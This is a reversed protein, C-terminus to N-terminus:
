SFLVGFRVEMVEQHPISKGKKLDLSIDQDEAYILQARRELRTLRSSLNIPSFLFDGFPRRYGLATRLPKRYSVIGHLGCLLTIHRHDLANLNLPGDFLRILQVVAEPSPTENKSLTNLTSKLLKRDYFASEVDSHDGSIQRQLPKQDSIESLRNTLGANPGILRRRLDAEDFVQRQRENWFARTLLVHPFAFFFPLLAITGPLAVAVLLPVLRIMDRPVTRLLRLDNRTLGSLNHSPVDSVIRFFKLGFYQKLDTFTSSVAQVVGTIHPAPLQARFATLGQLVFDSFGTMCRSLQYAACIYPPPTVPSVDAPLSVPEIFEEPVLAPSSVEGRIAALCPLLVRSTWISDAVDVSTATFVSTVDVRYVPIGGAAPRRIFRNKIWTLQRRAYQRTAAKVKEIAETLMLQGSASDRESSSLQLYKEFEKFGISQLVGRCWHETGVSPLLGRNALQFIAKKTEVSVSENECRDEVNPLLSRAATGLFDDLEHILGHEVMKSVRDDLRPGLVNPNCDLWIIVSDPPPYRPSFSRKIISTTAAPESNNGTDHSFARLLAQQLKRTDNPHLRMAADPDLNRLIGYYDKPNKPLRALLEEPWSRQPETAMKNFDGQYLNVQTQLFDAWLIAEIYYHTGGVVIPTVNRSKLDDILRWCDRRYQHVNYVFGKAPDLFGLLHHTVGKKECETVKNTAIDLGRYLQVADANIVQGNLHLALDIALKSKGTGTAGCVAIVPFHRRLGDIRLGM